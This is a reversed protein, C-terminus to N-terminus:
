RSGAEGPKGTWCLSARRVEEDSTVLGEVIGITHRCISTEVGPTGSAEDSM